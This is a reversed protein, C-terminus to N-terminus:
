WETSTGTSIVQTYPETRFKACCFIRCFKIPLKEPGHATIGEQFHKNIFPSHFFIFQFSTM